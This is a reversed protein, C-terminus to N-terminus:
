AWLFVLCSSSTKTLVTIYTMLFGWGYGTQGQAWVQRIHTIRDAYTHTHTHCLSYALSCNLLHAPANSNTTPDFIQRLWKVTIQNSYQTKNALCHTSVDAHRYTDALKGYWDKQSSIYKVAASITCMGDKWKWICLCVSMTFDAVLYKVSQTRWHTTIRKHIKQRGLHHM